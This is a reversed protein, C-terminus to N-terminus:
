EDKSKDASKEEEEDAKKEEKNERRMLGKRTARSFSYQIIQGFKIIQFKSTLAL